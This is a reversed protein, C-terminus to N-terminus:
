YSDYKKFFKYIEYAHRLNAALIDKGTTKIYKFSYDKKCVEM